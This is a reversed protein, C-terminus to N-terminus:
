PRTESAYPRRIALRPRRHPPTWRLALHRGDLTWRRGCSTVIRSRLARAVTTAGIPVGRRDVVCVLEGPEFPRDPM